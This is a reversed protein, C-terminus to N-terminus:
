HGALWAKIRVADPHAPELLLVRRYHQEALASRNLQQAYLNALSLHARADNPQSRIIKTLEEQADELYGAQKLALAFNYRADPSTPRIALAYEYALLSETWDRSTFAALGRNYYAEFYTPDARTARQYAAMAEVLRGARQAHAGETFSREAAKRNGVRGPRPSLYRYRPVATVGQTPAGSGPTSRDAYKWPPERNSLFGPPHPQEFPPRATTGVGTKNTAAGSVTGPPPMDNRTLPASVRNSLSPETRMANTLAPRPPTNTTARATANTTVANRSTPANTVRAPREGGQTEIRTVNTRPEGPNVPPLPRTAGTVRAELREVIAEVEHWNTPRPQVALYEKYRQLALIPNNLYQQSLIALNLLSPAHDPKEKLALNFNYLSDMPRKRQVQVLGLGNLADPHRPQLQLITKYTKEAADTQSSRLQATGLRLWGSISKPELYTFTTLEDVAQPAKNQDLYLCGLNYHAAALKHDLTLAHRYARQAQEHQGNGHYALGLYNFAQANTPMLRVATQLQETAREFEGERVFREGQLLARPGPSGCGGFFLITALASCFIFASWARKKTAVM